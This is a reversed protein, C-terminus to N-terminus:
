EISCVVSGATIRGNLAVEIATLPDPRLMLTTRQFDTTFMPRIEPLADQPADRPM